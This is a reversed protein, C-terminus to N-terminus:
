SPVVIGEDGFSNSFGDPVCIKLVAGRPDGSFVPVCGRVRLEEPVCKHEPLWEEGCGRCTPLEYSRPKSAIVGHIDNCLAIVRNAIRLKKAKRRALGADDTAVNCDDEALRQLTGAYRMLAQVQRLTARTHRGMALAFELKDKTATM